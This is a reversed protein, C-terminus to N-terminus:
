GTEDGRFRCPTGPPCSAATESDRPFRPSSPMSRLPGNSDVRISPDDRVGRVARVRRAAAGTHRIVKGAPLPLAGGDRTGRMWRGATSRASSGVPASSAAEASPTTWSGRQDEAGTRRSAQRPSGRGPRRRAGPDARYVELRGTVGFSAFINPLYTTSSRSRFRHRVSEVTVPTVSPTPRKQPTSKKISPKDADIVCRASLAGRRPYAASRSDVFRRIERFEDL